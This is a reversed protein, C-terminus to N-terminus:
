LNSNPHITALVRKNISSSEIRLEKSYNFYPILWFLSGILWIVLVIVISISIMHINTQILTSVILNGIIGGINTMIGSMSNVTGKLKPRVVDSFIAFQNGTSFFAFFFGGLGFLMFPSSYFSLLLVAGCIVGAM